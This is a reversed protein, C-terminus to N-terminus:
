TARPFGKMNLSAPDPEVKIVVPISILLYLTVLLLVSAFALFVKRRRRGSSYGTDVAHVPLEDNRSNPREPPAQDPPRPRHMESQRHVDILVKDGQVEWGLVAEGMQVRDGSKLWASDTLSENNHFLDDSDNAPQIYAHGDSLAIFALLQEDGAGPIVIGGQAKGGIRLPLEKENIRRQGRADDIFYYRSM